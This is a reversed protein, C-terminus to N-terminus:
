READDSDYKSRQECKKTRQQKKWCPQQSMSALAVAQHLTRRVVRDVRVGVPPAERRPPRRNGQNTLSNWAISCQVPFTIFTLRQQATPRIKAANELPLLACCAFVGLSEKSYMPLDTRPTGTDGATRIPLVSSTEPVGPKPSPPLSGASKGPCIFCAISFMVLIRLLAPAPQDCTPFTVTKRTRRSSKASIFRM